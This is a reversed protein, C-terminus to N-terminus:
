LEDKESVSPSTAVDRGGNYGRAGVAPIPIPLGLGIVIVIVLVLESRLWLYSM